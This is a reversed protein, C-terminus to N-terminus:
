HSHFLPITCSVGALIYPLIELPGHGPLESRFTKSDTVIKKQSLNVIDISHLTNKSFLRKLYNIGKVVKLLVFAMLEQTLQSNDLIYVRTACKSFKSQM